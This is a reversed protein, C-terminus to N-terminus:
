ALVLLFTQLNLFISIRIVQDKYIIGFLNQALRKFLNM